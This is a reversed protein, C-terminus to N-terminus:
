KFPSKNRLFLVLAGDGGFQRPARGWEAVEKRGERDLFREAEERLLARGSDSHLGKGTIVLLVQQQHYRANAIFSKLKGAVQSSQMGHLDLTQDISIKGKRLQKMRRPVAEPQDEDQPYQDVFSVNLDGVAELFLVSDSKEPEEDALEDVEFSDCPEEETDLELPEVGLLEMEESFSGIVPKEKVAAQPQEPKAKEPAPVSFGKLSSFPDSSFEKEKSNKQGKKRAM